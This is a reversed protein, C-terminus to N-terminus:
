LLGNVVILVLSRWAFGCIHSTSEGVSHHLAERCSLTWVLLWQVHSSLQVEDVRSDQSPVPLSEDTQAWSPPIWFVSTKWHYPSLLMKCMALVAALFCICSQYVHKWEFSSPLMNSPLLFHYPISKSDLFTQSWKPISLTKRTNFKSYRMIKQSVRTYVYAVWAFLCPYLFHTEREIFDLRIWLILDVSVRM